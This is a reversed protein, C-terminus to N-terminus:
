GMWRGPSPVKSRCASLQARGFAQTTTKEEFRRPLGERILLSTPETGLCATCCLPWSAPWRSVRRKPAPEDPSRWRRASLGLDSLKTTMGTYFCAVARWAIQPSRCLLASGTADLATKSLSGLRSRGGQLPEKPCYVGRGRQNCKSAEKKPTLFRRSPPVMYERNRKPRLNRVQGGGSGRSHCEVEHGGLRRRPWKKTLRSGM